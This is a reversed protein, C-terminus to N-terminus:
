NSGDYDSQPEVADPRFAWALMIADQLNGQRYRITKRLGNAFDLVDQGTVGKGSRSRGGM